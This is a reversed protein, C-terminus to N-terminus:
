AYKTSWREREGKDLTCSSFSNRVISITMRSMLLLYNYEIWLKIHGLHINVLNSTFPYILRFPIIRLFMEDTGEFQNYHITHIPFDFVFLNSEGMSFIILVNYKLPNEIYNHICSKCCDTNNDIRYWASAGSIKLM